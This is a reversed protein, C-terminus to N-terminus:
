FPGTGASERTIQGSYILELFSLNVTETPKGMNVKVRLGEEYM